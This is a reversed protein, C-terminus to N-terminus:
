PKRKPRRMLRGDILALGVGILALGALHRAVITEGLFLVGLFIASPPILFTVLLLNNAGASALLRFYILYALATSVTGLGILALITAAGPMSWGGMPIGLVPAAILTLPALLLTSATVQGAATEVPSVGLTRFRRGYVGAFAYSLAAALIALQAPVNAGLGALADGGMIVAVGVLGVAIGAVRLPTAKEDALMFHAVALTFLPTTANLIAALGSAIQVQGWVILTFPIVNNLIGMMLFARWPLRAGSRKNALLIFSWLALAAIAVRLFVITLPPLDRVAVGVFFFSGGWLVSLGILSLWQATSMRTSIPPMEPHKLGITNRARDRM